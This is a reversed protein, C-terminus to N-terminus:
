LGVEVLKDIMANVETQIASSDVNAIAADIQTTTLGSNAALILPTIKRMALVPNNIIALAMSKQNITPTALSLLEYAKKFCAMKIVNQLASNPIYGVLEQYTAM